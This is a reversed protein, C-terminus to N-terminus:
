QIWGVSKRWENYKVNRKHFNTPPFQNEHRSQQQIIKTQEELTNLGISARRQNVLDLEDYWLPAMEGKENWDFQTGYRQAKSKFVAIRDTLYALHKPNANNDNVAVELLQACRVMFKPLSIAHQIILWAAENAELGVKDITPYAIEDIINQLENANHIHLREMMPNYGIGLEKKQILTDRLNLDDNKLKIIRKSIVRYKM